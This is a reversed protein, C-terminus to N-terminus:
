KKAYGKEHITLKPETAAIAFDILEQDNEGEIMLFMVGGQYLPLNKSDMQKGNKFIEDNKIWLSLNTEMSRGVKLAKLREILENRKM